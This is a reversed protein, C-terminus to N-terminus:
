LVAFSLNIQYGEVDAEDPATHTLKLSQQELCQKTPEVSAGVIERLQMTSATVSVAHDKIQITIAGEIRPKTGRAEVPVDKTCERMGIKFKESLERVLSASVKRSDPAHLNPPLDLQPRNGSRHDRVTVGGVTYEAASGSGSSGSPSAPFAASGATPTAPNSPDQPHDTQVTTAGASGQATGAAAGQDRLKLWLIIGAAVVAVAGIVLVQRKM